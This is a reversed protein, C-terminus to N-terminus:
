PAPALHTALDVYEGTEPTLVGDEVALFQVQHNFMRNLGPAAFEETFDIPATFGTDVATAKDFAKVVGKASVDDSDALVSALAQYGAWTNQYWMLSWGGNEEDALDGVAAKADDWVEDSPAPFASITVAGELMGGAQETAYDTLGGPVVYQATESGLSAGAAALGVLAQSPIALIACDYGSIEEAISSFDTTTPPIKIQTTPAAGQSARGVDVLGAVQDTTPLDYTAFAVDECDDEATRAGLSALGVVGSAVPYSLPSTLEAAAIGTPAVYPIGAEELIPMITDGNTTFGGVVASVNEDVAQRACDASQNPDNGDNCTIVKLEHGNIGGANNITIRAGEAVDLAAKMNLTDTDYPTLTMVTIPDGTFEIDPDQTPTPADADANNGCATLGLLLVAATALGRSRRSRLFTQQTM